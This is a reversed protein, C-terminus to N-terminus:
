IVFLLDSLPDKWCGEESGALQLSALTWFSIMDVLITCVVASVMLRRLLYNLKPVIEPYLIYIAMGIVVLGKFVFYSVSWWVLSYRTAASPSYALMVTRPLSPSAWTPAKPGPRISEIMVTWRWRSLLIALAAAGTIMSSFAMLGLVHDIALPCGHLQRRIYVVCTGTAQVVGFLCVLVRGFWAWSVPETTRQLSMHGAQLLPVSIIQRGDNDRHSHSVSHHISARVGLVAQVYFDIDGITGHPGQQRKINQAYNVACAINQMVQVIYLMPFCLFAIVYFAHTRSPVQALSGFHGYLAVGFIHTVALRVITEGISQFTDPEQTSTM